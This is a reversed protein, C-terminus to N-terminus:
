RDTKIHQKEIATINIYKENRVKKDRKNVNHTAVCPKLQAHGNKKNNM